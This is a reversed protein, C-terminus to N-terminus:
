DSQFIDRTFVKKSVDALLPDFRNAVILDVSTEFAQFNKIVKFGLFTDRNIDPEFIVVSINKKELGQMIDIIASERFNDSDKKMGLRFIGISKFGMSFIYNVIYNKRTKNSEICAEIINHPINNFNARLQKTDKPLCYGGYGFSPNNYYNGIRPDYSIGEIISQTDLGKGICFNDIENIFAIRMALYTNSFLKTAEAEDSTVHLIPCKPELSAEKLLAVFNKSEKSNDGIIIRSPYLNDHLAMGERLFEPSFVINKTNFKRQMSQTFGVPVTSKIIVLSKFDQFDAITQLIKEISSTNFNKTKENFDTSVAIIIYDVDVLCQSPDLTACLDLDCLEFKKIIELDNISSQKNNILDVKEPDIELIKVQHHQSFIVGLSMGVYGAGVVTFKKKM